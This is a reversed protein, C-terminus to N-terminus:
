NMLILSSYIKSLYHWSRIRTSVLTLYSKMDLNSKKRKDVVGKKYEEDEFKKIVAEKTAQTRLLKNEPRASWNKRCEDSCLKKEQNIKVEFENNCVLCNRKIREIKNYGGM